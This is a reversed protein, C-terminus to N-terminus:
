EHSGGGELVKREAALDRTNARGDEYKTPFRIKLKEINRRLTEELTQGRLIHLSEVAYLIRALDEAMAHRDLERGYMGAKKVPDAFRSISRFLDREVNEAMTDPVWDECRVRPMEVLFESSLELASVAIAWYWMIDGLEECVGVDDGTAYADLYEYIESSMGMAAHTLRVNLRGHIAPVTPHTEFIRMDGMMEEIINDAPDMENYATYTFHPISETRLADQIYARLHM